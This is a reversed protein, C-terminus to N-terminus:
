KTNEWLNTATRYPKHLFGCPIDYLQYGLSHVLQGELGDGEGFFVM